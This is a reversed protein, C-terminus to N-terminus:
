KSCKRLCKNSSAPKPMAEKLSLGACKVQVDETASMARALIVLSELVNHGTKASVEIFLAEFDKALKQGDETSVCCRKEAQAMKRQDTKNALIVVPIRQSAVDRTPSNAHLAMMTYFCSVDVADIWQRVNLFSHENTCDYVLMIGDAKRFYSQTISRFREQGATDWLQVAINRGDVRLYKMYFDVGLTSTLNEVFVGKSLRIILSSKGVAADGVFVVKYTRDQPGNPEFSDGRNVEYTRDLPSKPEISYSEVTKLKQQQHNEEQAHVVREEHINAVEVKYTRDIPSKPEISYSEVAKLKQQQHNEEQAHVIREEHINAVEVSQNLIRKNVDSKKTVVHVAKQQKFRGRPLPHPPLKRAQAPHHELSLRPTPVPTGDVTSTPTSQKSSLQRTYGAVEPDLGLQRKIEMVRRSSFGEESETHTISYSLPQGNELIDSKVKADSQLMSQVETRVKPKSLHRRESLSSKRSGSQSQTSTSSEKKTTLRLIKAQKENEEAVNDSFDDTETVDRLTSLGSDIDDMISDMNSNDDNNLGFWSMLLRRNDESDEILSYGDDNEEISSQKSKALGISPMEACLYDGIISDTKGLEVHSTQKHCLNREVDVFEGLTDNTDQLRKTDDSRLERCKEEYMSRLQAIDSRMLAVSTQTDMLSIRVQRNEDVADELKTLVESLRDAKIPDKVSKLWSDVQKKERLELHKVQTDLEEESSHLHREHEKKERKWLNELKANEEQLKRISELLDSILTEFHIVLNPNESNQLETSMALLKEESILNGAKGLEKMLNQWTQFVMQKKDEDLCSTPDPDVSQRRSQTAFVTFGNSFKEYDIRGDDDHDLDHFIADADQVSIGFKACLNRLEDQSLYGTGRTDYTKFLDELEASAM